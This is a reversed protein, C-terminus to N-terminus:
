DARKVQCSIPIAIRRLQLSEVWGRYRCEAYPEYRRQSVAPSKQFRREADELSLTVALHYPRKAGQVAPEIIVIRSRDVVGAAPHNGSVCVIVAWGSHVRIGFTANKM